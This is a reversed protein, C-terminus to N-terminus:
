GPPCSPRHHRESARSAPFVPSRRPRCRARSRAARDPRLVRCLSRRPARPRSSEALRWARWPTGFSATSGSCACCRRIVPPGRKHIACILWPGSMGASVRAGASAGHRTMAVRTARIRIASTACSSTGSTCGRTSRVSGGRQGTACSSGAAALARREGDTQDRGAPRPRSRPTASYAFDFSNPKFKKRSVRGRVVPTRVRPVIGNRDLLKNYDTALPDVATIEVLRDPLQKGLITM